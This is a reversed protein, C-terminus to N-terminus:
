LHLAVNLKKRAYKPPLSVEPDMYFHAVVGMKNAALVSALQSVQEEAPHLFLAQAEAFAGQPSHSVFCMLVYEDYPRVM